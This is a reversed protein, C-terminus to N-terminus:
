VMYAANDPMPPLTADVDTIVHRSKSFHHNFIVAFIPWFAVLLDLYLMFNSSKRFWQVAEPSKCIIPTLKSAVQDGNALFAGGCVPDVMSAMSGTVTLMFAIKGEVDDRVRKTIKLAPAPANAKAEEFPAPDDPTIRAADELSISDGYFEAYTTDNGDDSDNAPSAEAIYDATTANEANQRHGRKYNRTSGPPLYQGCGCQCENM